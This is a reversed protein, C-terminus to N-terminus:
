AGPDRGSAREDAVPIALVFRAGGAPSPDASVELSGGHDLAIKKSIALGLGTGTPKSTVYPEFIREREEAAVGPGEDDVTVIALSRAADVRWAIVVKGARDGLTGAQIGNEVLNALVRRLLLRDARVRVVTPPGSLELHDRLMPDKILDEIVDGLSLSVAEVRPLRGLSSFADVLRRLNAIEEEVIERTEALLTRFRDDDGAYSSVMQQVALQIPTLPNKIEHALKRAVDQWAGIRQLYLIKRRDDELEEGMRNFARALEALEDRGGVSVRATLDGEAIRRTGSVLGEIRRTITRASVIGIATVVVVVGGVLVLFGLLYSGPVQSRRLREVHTSIEIADEIAQNDDLLSLDAAFTLELQWDTGPVPEIVVRDRYGGDDGELARRPTKGRTVGSPDVIAIELPADTEDDGIMTAEALRGATPPQASVAERAAPSAALRRAIERHVLKKTEILERYAGRVRILQDRLRSAENSAVRAAGEAIEPILLASVALPVLSIFLLGLVFRIQLSV